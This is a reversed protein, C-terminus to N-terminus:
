TVRPRLDRRQVTLAKSWSAPGVRLHGPAGRALHPRPVSSVALKRCGRSPKEGRAPSPHM